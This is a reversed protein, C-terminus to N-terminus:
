QNTPFVREGFHCSNSRQYSIFVLILSRCSPSRLLVSFIDLEVTSHIHLLLSVLTEVAVPVALARCSLVIFLPAIFLM